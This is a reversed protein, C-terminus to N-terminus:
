FIVNGDHEEVAIEESARFNRRIPVNLAGVPTSLIQM